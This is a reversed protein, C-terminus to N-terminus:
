LERAVYCNDTINYGNFAFTDKLSVKPKGKIYKEQMHSITLSYNSIAGSIGPIIIKKVGRAQLGPTIKNIFNEIFEGVDVEHERPIDFARLLAVKNNDADELEFVLVSGLFEKKELNNENIFKYPVLNEYRSLLPYEKTYCANGLYGSLEGVLGRDPYCAVNVKFKDNEKSQFTSITEQLQNSQNSFIKSLNVMKNNNKTKIIQKWVEDSWYEEANNDNLNLIHHKLLNDLLNQLLLISHETIEENSLNSLIAEVGQGNNLKSDLFKRLVLKRLESDLGLKELSKRDIELINLLLKDFDNQNGNLDALIRDYQLLQQQAYPNDKKDLLSSKKENIKEQINNKLNFFLLDSSKESIFVDLVESRLVNYFSDEEKLKSDDFEHEVSNSSIRIEEYEEPVGKYENNNEASYNKFDALIKEMSPRGSLFQHSNYGSSQSLLVNELNGWNVIDAALIEEDSFLLKEMKSYITELSEWSDIGDNLQENPLNEIKGESLLTLNKFYGYFLDQKALGYKNIYNGAINLNDVDVQFLGKKQLFQLFGSTRDYPNHTFANRKEDSSKDKPLKDVFDDVNEKGLKSKWDTKKGVYLYLLDIKEPTLANGALGIAESLDKFNKLVKSLRSVSDPLNSSFTIILKLYTDKDLRSFKDINDILSHACDAALIKDALAQDLSVGHFKNINQILFWAGRNVIIKDALAQDLVVGTFKDINQILDVIVVYSGTAIIKDALVQDLRMGPFRDINEMLFQYNRASILADEFKQNFKVGSFNDMNDMLVRFHGVSMLVDAFNQDFKVGPFKNINFELFQFNGELILKDAFVQDFKVGPFKDINKILAGVGGGVAIIKDAMTQDLVVGPFKNINDILFRITGYHGTAIMNDAMAQDLAVGHFRDINKILVEANGTTIIKDALVQDLAVGHFKDINKILVEANGTTIIKDALAQDLAAGPFKDINEILFDAGGAVIIKDLLTQDLGMGPFMAINEILFGPDNESLVEIVKDLTIEPFKDINEIFVKWGRIKILDEVYQGLPLKVGPFKEINEIFEKVSEDGASLLKEALEQYNITSNEGEDTETMQSISALDFQPMTDLVDGANENEETQNKSKNVDRLNRQPLNGVQIETRSVNATPPMKDLFDGVNENEETQNKSKNVDRFNRQPLNGVQIETGLNNETPQRDLQKGPIENVSERFM